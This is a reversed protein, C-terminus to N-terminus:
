DTLTFVEYDIVTFNYNGFLSVNSASEGDYSHPLNSYSADSMHCHDAISLDAGAGFVPGFNAHHAIAFMKKKIDYRVPTTKDPCHLSFLFAKESAAYRGRGKGDGRSWPVDSFGGSLYGQSGLILVYTPSVGDCHTHFADASFDHSSARFILKWPQKPVGFWENLIQEKDGLTSLLKSNAFLHKMLPALRPQVRKNLENTDHKNAALAAFRYRELSLEIPVVGTPEVEEAFVQSDILLIRIHNIVGSLQQNVRSREEETWHQTPQM